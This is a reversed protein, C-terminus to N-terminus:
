FFDGNCAVVVDADRNSYEIAIATERDQGVWVERVGTPPCVRLISAKRVNRNVHDHLRHLLSQTLGVYVLAKGDDVATVLAQPPESDFHSYWRARLDHIDTPADLDLAYCGPSDFTDPTLGHKELESEPYFNPM